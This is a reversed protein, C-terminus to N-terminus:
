RAGRRVSMSICRHLDSSSNPPQLWVSNAKIENSLSSRTSEWVHGRTNYTHVAHVARVCVRVDCSYFMGNNCGAHKVHIFLFCLLTHPPPALTFSFFFFSLFIVFTVTLSLFPLLFSSLPLHPRPFSLLPHPSPLLASCFSAPTPSLSCCYHRRMGIPRHM